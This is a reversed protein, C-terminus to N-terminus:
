LGIKITFLHDLGRYILFCNNIREFQCLEGFAKVFLDEFYKNLLEEFKDPELNLGALSSCYDFVISNWYDHKLITFQIM